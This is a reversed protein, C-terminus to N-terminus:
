SSISQNKNQKIKIAKIYKLKSYRFAYNGLTLGVWGDLFGKKLFYWKIFASFASAYAKAVSAKKNKLILDRAAIDSYFVLKKELQERSEFTIHNLRGALKGKTKYGTPTEHVLSSHEFNVINRNYLRIPFDPSVIPYLVRVKQGLVNWHREAEYADKDFGIQKLNKLASIFNEDPIEDSDLFLVYDFSCVKAALSRQSKFDTFAHFIFKATPFTSVISETSDSSGSDIVLIEDAVSEIRELIKFLHVESNFTLIYASLKNNNM